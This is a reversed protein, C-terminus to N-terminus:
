ALGIVNRLLLVTQSKLEKRSSHTSMVEWSDLSSYHNLVDVAKKTGGSESPEESGSHWQQCGAQMQPGWILTVTSVEMTVKQVSAKM